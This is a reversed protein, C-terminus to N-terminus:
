ACLQHAKATTRWAAESLVHKDKQYPIMLAGKAQVVVCIATALPLPLLPARCLSCVEEGGGFSLQGEKYRRYVDLASASFFRTARGAQSLKSLTEAEGQHKCGLARSGDCQGPVNGPPEEDGPVGKSTRKAPREAQHCQKLAQTSQKLLALKMSRILQALPLDSLVATSRWLCTVSYLLAAHSHLLHYLKAKSCRLGPMCTALLARWWPAAATQLM